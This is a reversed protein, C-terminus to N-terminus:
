AELGGERGVIAANGAHILGQIESALYAPGLDVVAEGNGRTSTSEVTHVFGGLEIKTGVPFPDAESGWPAPRPDATPEESM